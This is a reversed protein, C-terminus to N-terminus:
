NRHRSKAYARFDKQQKLRQQQQKAKQKSITDAYLKKQETDLDKISAGATILLKAIDNKNANVAQLLATKKYKDKIDLKAGAAIIEKIICPPQVTACMLATRKRENQININAKATILEKVCNINNSMIATMIATNGFCNQTNVDIKRAVLEKVLELHNNRAAWHLATDGSCDYKTNIDAGSDLATQMSKLNGFKAADILTDNLNNQKNM